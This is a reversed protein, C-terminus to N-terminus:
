SRDWVNRKFLASNNSALDGDCAQVGASIAVDSNSILPVKSVEHNFKAEAMPSRCINGTCVFLIKKM